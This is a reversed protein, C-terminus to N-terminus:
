SKLALRDLGRISAYVTVKAGSCGYDPELNARGAVDELERLVPGLLQLDIRRLDAGQQVSEVVLGREPHM